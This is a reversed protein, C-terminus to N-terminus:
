VKSGGGAYIHKFGGGEGTFFTVALVDYAMMCQTVHCKPLANPTHMEYVCKMNICMTRMCMESVGM